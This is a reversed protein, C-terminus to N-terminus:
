TIRAQEELWLAIKPFDTEGKGGLLKDVQFLFKVGRETLRFSSSYSDWQILRMRIPNKQLDRNSVFNHVRNAFRSATQSPTRERENQNLWKSREGAAVIQWERMAFDSSRHLLLMVICDIRIQSLSLKKAM